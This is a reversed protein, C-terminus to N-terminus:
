SEDPMGLQVVTTRGAAVFLARGAPFDARNLRPPFGTRFVTLGDNAEPQLAVGTRGSKAPGYLPYSATLTSTEGEAVFLFDNGLCVKALEQLLNDAASNVFEAINEVFVAVKTGSEGVM